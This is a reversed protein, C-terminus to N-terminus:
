HVINYFFESNHLGDSIHNSAAHQFNFSTAYLGVQHEGCFFATKLYM